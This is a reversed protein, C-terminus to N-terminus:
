HLPPKRSPERGESQQGKDSGPGQETEGDGDGANQLQNQFSQQVRRRQIALSQVCTGPRQRM